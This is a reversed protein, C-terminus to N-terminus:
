WAKVVTAVAGAMILAVILFKLTREPVVMTTRSGLVSGFLSGVTLLVLHTWPIGGAAFHTLTAPIVMLLAIAINSGVIERAPMEFLYVMSLIVLSGSGISTIGLLSGVVFQFAAIGTGAKWSIHEPRFPKAQLFLGRVREEFVILISILVLVGSMLFPFVRRMDDGALYLLRSGFVAGPIGTLGYVLTIKPLVTGQRFHEVVSFVKAFLAYILSLAVAEAYEMRLIVYLAPAVLAGGGVGTLGILFGLTFGLPVDVLAPVLFEM